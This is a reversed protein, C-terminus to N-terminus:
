RFTTKATLRYAYNYRLPTYRLQESLLSGSTILSSTGEV